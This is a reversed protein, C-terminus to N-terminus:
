RIEQGPARPGRLRAVMDAQEVKRNERWGPWMEDDGHQGGAANAFANLGMAKLFGDIFGRSFTGAPGFTERITDTMLRIAQLGQNIPTLLMIQLGAFGAGIDNGLITTLNELPEWAAELRDEMKIRQAGDVAGGKAIANAAAFKRMERHFELMANQTALAPSYSVLSETTKWAQAAMARLSSVVEKAVSAIGFIAMVPAAAMGMAAGFRGAVAPAVGMRGALNTAANQGMSQMASRLGAPILNGVPQLKKALWATGSLIKTLFPNQDKEPIQSAPETSTAQQTRDTQPIGRVANTNDNISEALRDLSNTVQQEGQTVVTEADSKPVGMYDAFATMMQSLPSAAQRTADLQNATDHDRSNFPDLSALIANRQNQMVNQEQVTKGGFAETLSKVWAWMKSTPTFTANTGSGSLDSGGQGTSHAMFNVLRNTIREMPRGGPNALQRFIDRLLRNTEDAKQETSDSM